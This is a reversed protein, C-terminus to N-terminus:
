VSAAMPFMADVIQRYTLSRTGGEALMHATLYALGPKDAPDAAPGTTFVIRFTILPSKGPLQTVRMQAMAACAAMLVTICAWLAPKWGAMGANMRANKRGPDGIPDRM